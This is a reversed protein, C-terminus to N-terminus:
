RCIISDDKVSCEDHIVLHGTFLNIRNGKIPKLYEQNSIWCRASLFFFKHTQDHAKYFM